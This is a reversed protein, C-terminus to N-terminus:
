NKTASWPGTVTVNGGGGVGIVLTTNGSMFTNTPNVGGTLSASDVPVPTAPSGAPTNDPPGAWV